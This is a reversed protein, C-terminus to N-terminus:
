VGRFVVYQHRGLKIDDLARGTCALSCMITVCADTMLADDDGDAGHPRWERATELRRARSGARAIERAWGRVCARAGIGGWVVRRFSYVRM